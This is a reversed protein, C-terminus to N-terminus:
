LTWIQVTICVFKSIHTHTHTHKRHSKTYTHTHTHTHIKRHSQTYTHVSLRGVGCVLHVWVYSFGLRLDEGLNIYEAGCDTCPADSNTSNSSSNVKYQVLWVPAKQSIAIAQHKFEYKTWIQPFHAIQLNNLDPHFPFGISISLSSKGRTELASM